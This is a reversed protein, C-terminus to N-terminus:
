SGGLGDDSSWVRVAAPDDPMVFEYTEADVFRGYDENGNVSIHVYADLLSYVEISVTEGAPASKPCQRVLEDDDELDIAPWDDDASQERLYQKQLSQVYTWLEGQDSVAYSQRGRVLIGEGEFNYAATTGDQLKFSVFHYSDTISMATEGEVHMRALRKYVERITRADTVTVAPLAGMQDYLVTCSTPTKGAQMDSVLQASAANDDFTLVSADSLQISVGIPKSSRAGSDASATDNAGSSEVRSAGSSESRASDNSPNGSSVPAGCASLGMCIAAAAVMSALVMLRRQM